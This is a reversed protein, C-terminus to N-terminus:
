KKFDNAFKLILNLLDVSGQTYILNDGDELMIDSGGVNLSVYKEGLLGNSSINAETDEPLLVDQEVSIEVVAMYTDKNLRLDTVTGIKVGALRVDSGVMIGDSSSFEAFYKSSNNKIKDNLYNSLGFIFFILAIIIILSGIIIELTKNEREKNMQLGAKM